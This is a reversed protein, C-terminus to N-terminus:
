RIEEIRGREIRYLKVRDLSPDKATYNFGSVGVSLPASSLYESLLRSNDMGSRVAEGVIRAADFGQASQRMPDEGYEDRYRRSFDQSIQASDGDVDYGTFVSGEVYERVLALLRDSQWGNAGLLPAEIEYFRLQTTIMIVDNASAPLYVADFEYEKLVEIEDKFDTKGTEYSLAAIVEGGRKECRLTFEKSLSRGYANEPHIIAFSRFGEERIAYDVLVGVQEKLGTHLQFVNEGLEAIREDTATPSLLPTGLADAAVAAPITTKTFLPGIVVLVNHRSVLERVGKVAEIPDGKSDYSVLAIKVHESLALEVGKRLAEGYTSYGGTLPAILGVKVAGPSKVFKMLRRASESTGQDTDMALLRELDSKAAEHRGERIEAEALALLIAGKAEPHECEQALGRLERVSLGDALSTLERIFVPARSEDAIMDLADVYARAARLSDGASLYSEAVLQNASDFLHSGPFRAVLQRAERIAAGYDRLAYHSKALMFQGDDAYQTRSGAVATFHTIADSYNGQDYLRTGLALSMQVDEQSMAPQQRLM